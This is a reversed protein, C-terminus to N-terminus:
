RVLTTSAQVVHRRSHLFAAPDVVPAAPVTPNDEVKKESGKQEAGAGCAAEAGCAKEAGCGAKDECCAPKCAKRCAFIRDLLSPKCKRGCADGKGTCPDKEAGCTPKECCGPDKAEGGKECCGKEECCAKKCKKAFLPRHCKPACADGKGTCPDKEAGCAPKECCGPDKAECGKECCAKSAKCAFLPRRCKAAKECGCAAKGACPDCAATCDKVACGKAECGCGNAGLMRDLLDFGFSQTSLGLGLVVSAILINWKM